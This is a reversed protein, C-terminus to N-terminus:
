TWRHATLARVSAAAWASTAVLYAATGLTSFVADGARWLITDLALLGALTLLMTITLLIAGARADFRPPVYDSGTMSSVAFAVGPIMVVFGAILLIGATGATRDEFRM